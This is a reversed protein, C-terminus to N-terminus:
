TQKGRFVQLVVRFILFVFVAVGTMALLTPGPVILLDFFDLAWAVAWGFVWSLFLGFPNRVTRILPFDVARKVFALTFLWSGIVAGVIVIPLERFSSGFELVHYLSVACIAACVATILHVVLSYIHRWPAERGDYVGHLLSVAFIGIPVVIFVILLFRQYQSLLAFITEISMTTGDM